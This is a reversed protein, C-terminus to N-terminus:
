LDLSEMRKTRYSIALEFRRTMGPSGLTVAQLTGRLDPPLEAIALRRVAAVRVSDLGFSMEPPDLVWGFGISRIVEDRVAVPVSTDLAWETLAAAGVPTAGAAGILARVARVEDLRHDLAVLTARALRRASDREALLPDRDIMLYADHELRIGAIVRLLDSRAQLDRARRLALRVAARAREPDGSERASRAAALIAHGSPQSDEPPPAGSASDIVVDRGVGRWAPAQWSDPPFTDGFVAVVRRAARWRATAPAAVAPSDAPAPGPILAALDYTSLSDLAASAGLPAVPLQSQGTEIGSTGVILWSAVVMVVLLGGCGFAGYVIKKHTGAQM